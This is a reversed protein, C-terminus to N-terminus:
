LFSYDPEFAPGFDCNEYIFLQARGGGEQTIFILINKSSKKAAALGSDMDPHFDANDLAFAPAAAFVLASMFLGKVLRKLINKKM